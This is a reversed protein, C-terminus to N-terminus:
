SHLRLGDLVKEITKKRDRMAIGVVRLDDSAVAKVAARNEVDNPTAFLDETYVSFQVGRQLAREYARRLQAPDAEFVLIPQRIMPLYVNGSADEYNEGVIDPVTGAIGSITFATVNLKQWVLLDNRLVVAIKTDFTM